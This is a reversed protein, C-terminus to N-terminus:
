ECFEVKTYICLEQFIKKYIKVTMFDYFIRLFFTTVDCQLLM